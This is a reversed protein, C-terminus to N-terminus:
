SDRTQMVQGLRALAAAVSDGPDSDLIQIMRRMDAGQQREAAAQATLPPLAPTAGWTGPWPPPPEPPPSYGRWQTAQLVAYANTEQELVFRGDRWSDACRRVWNLIGLDRLRKIATAVTRECVNAACAIAAYSPDLRGSAYNLFDFMLAHLVQLAIHGVAGGHKGPEHTQRDFDRARHWLKVAAKKPMPQFKIETTTSGSWVPWAAHTQPGALGPLPSLYHALSPM